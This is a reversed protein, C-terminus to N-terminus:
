RKLVRQIVRETIGLKLYLWAGYLPGSFMIYVRGNPFALADLRVHLEKVMVIVNNFRSNKM